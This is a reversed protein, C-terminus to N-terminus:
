KVIGFKWPELGASRLKEDANLMVNELHRLRKFRLDEDRRIRGSNRIISVILEWSPADKDRVPASHIFKRKGNHIEILGAWDPVEELELMNPPTVYYFEDSFLRAERQKKHSDRNFDSRSVKVEFVTARYGKGAHTHLTWFDARNRGSSYALETCWICNDGTTKILAEIIEDATM